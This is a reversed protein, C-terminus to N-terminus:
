KEFSFMIQDPQSVDRYMLSCSLKEFGCKQSIDSQRFLGVVIDAKGRKKTRLYHVGTQATIGHQRDPSLVYKLWKEFSSQHRKLEDPLDIFYYINQKLPM